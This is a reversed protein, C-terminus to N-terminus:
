RRDLVLVKSGIQNQIQAGINQAQNESLYPGAYVKYFGDSSQTQLRNNLEPNQRVIQVIIKQANELQSYVGIQVYFGGALERSGTQQKSTTSSTQTNHGTTAPIRGAVIDAPLIREVIVEGVGHELTGLRHAAAYSLDIIRSDKFPGRDNVRVIVSRGNKVNTVHVYCPIPLTTHAATMAYMNYKEGSSTSRGHFKKGYWSAQGKKRYPTERTDPVYRKGLVTYPKNPGSLLPEVKPTADKYHDSNTVVSKHSTACGSLVIMCLLMLNLLSIQKILSDMCCLRCLAKTRSAM